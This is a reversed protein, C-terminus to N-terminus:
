RILATPAAAGPAQLATGVSFSWEYTRGNATISVTYAAGASLASRPILVIADRANLVSRGLGQYSSDPNIYNTEDFVCHELATAGRRLSHATVSPTLNGPGIQLTIPLGTPATYGPCSTLPDPAEGGGYSSLLTTMGNEPWRVPFAVTAPIAGLGHIVDLAAGMKWTGIAERYSGFGTQLLAPDVIGVAHFPGRMWLDIAYEDSTSLASSIMVDSNQGAAAGESTYWANGPTEYHTILDNKVMYRAHKWCGDSWSANEVVPPLLALARQYNVYALWNGLPPPTVAPPAGELQPLYARPTMGPEAAAAPPTPLRSALLLMGVLALWTLALRSRM